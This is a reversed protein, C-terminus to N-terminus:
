KQRVAPELFRRVFIHDPARPQRDSKLRVRKQHGAWRSEGARRRRTAEVIAEYAAQREAMLRAFAPDRHKLRLGLGVCAKHSKGIIAAAERDPMTHWFRWIAKQQEESWGRFNGMIARHNGIVLFQYDDERERCLRDFEADRQRLRAAAQYCAKRSVGIREATITEQEIHWYQRLIRLHCGTWLM